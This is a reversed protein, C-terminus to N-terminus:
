SREDRSRSNIERKANVRAGWEGSPPYIGEKRFFERTLVAHSNFRHNTLFKKPGYIFFRLFRDIWKTISEPPWNIVASAMMLAKRERLGEAKLEQIQEATKM